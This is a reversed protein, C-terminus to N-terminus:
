GMEHTHQTAIFVSVNSTEENGFRGLDLTVQSTVGERKSVAFLELSHLKHEKENPVVCVETFSEVGNVVLLLLPVRM